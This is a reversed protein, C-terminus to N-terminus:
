GKKKFQGDKWYYTCHECHWYLIGKTIGTGDVAKITETAPHANVTVYLGKVYLSEEKVTGNCCPCNDVDILKM